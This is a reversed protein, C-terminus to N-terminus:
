IHCLGAMCLGEFTAQADTYPMHFLGLVESFFVFLYICSPLPGSKLTAGLQCQMASMNGKSHGPRSLTAPSAKPESELLPLARRVRLTSLELNRERRTRNGWRWAIRHSTRFLVGPTKYSKGEQTASKPVLKRDPPPCPQSKLAIMLPLLKSFCSYLYQPTEPGVRSSVGFLVAFNYFSSPALHSPAVLDLRGPAYCRAVSYFSSSTSIGFSVPPQSTGTAQLWSHLGLVFM